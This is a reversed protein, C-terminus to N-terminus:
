LPLTYRPPASFIQHMKNTMSGM